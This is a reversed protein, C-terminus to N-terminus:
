RMRRAKCSFRRVELESIVLDRGWAVLSVTAM